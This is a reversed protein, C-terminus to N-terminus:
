GRCIKWIVGTGPIQLLPGDGAIKFKTEPSSQGFDRVAGYDVLYACGDPGFRLNTPRNIGHLGDPFSQESNTNRAFVQQSLALPEGPESFNVLEVDHGLEPEGNGKSFGFDGERAILAGGRRVAGTAFSDPVFDVGVDAVDAPELALPATIAQPPHDLVPKVPVDNALVLAICMPFPLLSAACLDDGPGGVPNFVAQTSDLFGFRDPWGHYDPSGDPNQRAIALRDPANNVPRAGREDEGNETVFLGGSLAHNAPAFRIGYPNRYGWSFPEITATPNGGHLKARLIAGDCVGSHLAGTFAPVTGGKNTTGFPSYGSTHVLASCNSSAPDCSPFINQSLTITQCPIDQQNHGGNNDLGVVGSNTTSGQSWYLWGDKFALQEAPHDGTPLGTIFPTVAGTTLNMTVIRSSNNQGGGHTAQNSDTAFLRGGNIGKEFAIDIAPGSPQFGGGSATPKGLPGAIKNGRQDFVVIDPTMPNNPSHVGGFVPNSEDNCRSPLGHGSELVFVKFNFANGLFAIGTPFNLGKAFVSVKYGPLLVIDEGNGPDFLVEEGPCAPNGVTAAVSGQAVCIAGLLGPLALPFRLTSFRM